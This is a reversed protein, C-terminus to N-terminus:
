MFKIAYYQKLGTNIKNCAANIAAVHGGDLMIAFDFKFKNKCSDNIQSATMNKFYVGYFMGNRYGLVTHNTKRLVDSYKGVFGEEKPNYMNLLGFGGVAIDINNLDFSDVIRIVKKIGVTGDKLRYIVSEPNGTEYHCSCWRQIGQSRSVLISCPYTGGNFSGSISNTSLSTKPCVPDINKSIITPQGYMTVNLPFCDVGIMIAIDSITQTGIFGNDLAGIKRQISKILRVEEKTTGVVDYM